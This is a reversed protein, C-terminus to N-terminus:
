TNILPRIFVLSGAGTVTSSKFAPALAQLPEPQACFTIPTNAPLDYLTQGTEQAHDVGPFKQLDAGPRLRPKTIRSQLGPM